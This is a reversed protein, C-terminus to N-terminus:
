KKLNLKEFIVHRRVFKQVEQWGLVQANYLLANSFIRTPIRYEPQNAIDLNYKERITKLQEGSGQESYVLNEMMWDKLHELAQGSLNPRLVNVAVSNNQYLTLM